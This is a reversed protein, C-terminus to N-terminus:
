IMEIIKPHSRDQYFDINRKINGLLKELTAAIYIDRSSSKSGNTVKKFVNNEVTNILYRINRKGSGTLYM